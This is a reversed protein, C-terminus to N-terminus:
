WSNFGIIIICRFFANQTQIYAIIDAIQHQGIAGFDDLLSTDTNTAAPEGLFDGLFELQGEGLSLM